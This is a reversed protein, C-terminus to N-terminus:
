LQFLPMSIRHVFYPLYYINVLTTRMVASLHLLIQYIHLLLSFLWQLLADTRNHLKNKPWIQLIGFYVTLQHSFFSFDTIEVKITELELKAIWYLLAVM